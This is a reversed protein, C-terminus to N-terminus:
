AECICPEAEPALWSTLHGDKRATTTTGSRLMYATPFLQTAVQAPACSGLMWSCPPAKCPIHPKRQPQNGNTGKIVLSSSLLRVSLLGYPQLAALLM